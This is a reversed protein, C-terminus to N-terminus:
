MKTLALFNVCTLEIIKHLNHSQILMSNRMKQADCQIVNSPYLVKMSYIQRWKKEKLSSIVLIRWLCLM